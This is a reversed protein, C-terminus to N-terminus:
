SWVKNLYPDGTEFGTEVMINKFINKGTQISVTADKGHPLVADIPLSVM